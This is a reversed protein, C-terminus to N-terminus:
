GNWSTNEFVQWVEQNNQIGTTDKPEHQVSQGGM